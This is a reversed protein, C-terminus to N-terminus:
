KRSLTISSEAFVFDKWYIRIKLIKYSQILLCFIIDTKNDIWNQSNRKHLNAPLM